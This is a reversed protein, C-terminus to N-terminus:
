TKLVAAPLVMPFPMLKTPPIRNVEPGPVSERRREGLWAPRFLLVLVYSVVAVLLIVGLILLVVGASSGANSPPPPPSVM